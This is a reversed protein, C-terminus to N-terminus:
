RCFEALHIWDINERGRDKLDLKTNDECRHRPRGAKEVLIRYANRMKGM